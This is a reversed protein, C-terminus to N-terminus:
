TNIDRPPPAQMMRARLGFLFEIVGLAAIVIILWNQVILLFYAAGLTLSRAARGRTGMHLLALGLAAFPIVFAAGIISAAFGLVGGMTSFVLGGGFAFLALPPLRFAALDPWQRALRGSARVIRGAAWLNVLSVTTWLAAALPPLAVVALDIIRNADAGGPLTPASGDPTGTEARLFHEFMTRLVARYTEVSGGHMLLTIMVLVSGIAAAWIILRGVPYWVIGKEPQTPDAPQGLLALYALWWGPFGVSLAYGRATDFGMTVALILTAFAAGVFGAHHRWGLAAIFVPLPAFLFLILSLLSGTGLVTSLAASAVGSGLGVLLTTANM